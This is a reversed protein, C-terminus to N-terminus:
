YIVRRDVKIVIPPEHTNPRSIEALERGASSTGGQILQSLSLAKKSLRFTQRVKEAVLDLYAVTLARWETIVPDSLEFMPAVEIKSQNPLLANEHYNKIGREYDKPKLTLFGTDILLGGNSYDPLPTLQDTGEITAGLLKEMPEILSYVLWQSLRHFSVMHETSQPSAQGQSSSLLTACPWVDGLGLTGGKGLEAAWIEGMEQVVPWLTEISILPGKKTKITTPHELLYDILNGPRQVGTGFYNTRNQLVTGLNILADVREELGALQNNPGVQLGEFITDKDLNMLTESDVRHPQAPDSSFLGNVFMDLVAVAVGDKWKYNRGTMAETYSWSQYPEIDLLCAVVFLDILKRTQELTDQGLSSWTHLLNQIRPRNGVDFHRWRGHVPIDSPSDYDRKIISVVFQVVDELKSQDLDFHQLRNRVAAEQVKFCRDRVSGLGLLYDQDSYASVM